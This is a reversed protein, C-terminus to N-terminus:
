NPGFNQVTLDPCSHHKWWFKEESSWSNLVLTDRQNTQAEFLVRFGRLSKRHKQEAEEESVIVAIMVFKEKLSRRHSDGHEEESKWHEMVTLYPQLWMIEWMGHQQLVVRHRRRQRYLVTNGWQGEELASRSGPVAAPIQSEWWIWLSWDTLVPVLLMNLFSSSIRSVVALASEELQSNFNKFIYTM